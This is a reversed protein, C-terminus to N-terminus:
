LAALRLEQAALNLAMYTEGRRVHFRGLTQSALLVHRQHRARTIVTGEDEVTKKNGYDNNSTVRSVVKHYLTEIFEDVGYKTCLKNWVDTSSFYM